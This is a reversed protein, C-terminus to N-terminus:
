ATSLPMDAEPRLVYWVTHSPSFCSAVPDDAGVSAEALPVADDRFPLSEIVRASDFADHPLARAGMGSFVALALAVAAIALLAVVHMLGQSVIPPGTGSDPADM